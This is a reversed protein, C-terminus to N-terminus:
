FPQLLARGGRPLVRGVEGTVTIREGPKLGRVDHSQGPASRCVTMSGKMFLEARDTSSDLWVETPNIHFPDPFGTVKVKAGIPVKGSAIANYLDVPNDFKVVKASVAVLQRTAPATTTLTTAAASTPTAAPAPAAAEEGSACAVAFLGVAVPVGLLLSM